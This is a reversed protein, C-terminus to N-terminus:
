PTQGSSSESERLVERQQLLEVYHRAKALDTRRLVPDGGLAARTVYKVVCGALFDLDNAIIYELPQMKMSGYHNGRPADVVRGTSVIAALAERASKTADGM